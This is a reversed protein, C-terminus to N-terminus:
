IDVRTTVTSRILALLRVRSMAKKFLKDSQQKFTLSIDMLVGLYEYVTSNEVKRTGAMISIESSNSLKKKTGYLVAETKRKKLNITLNNYELWNIVYNFQENIIGEIKKPDKDSYFIVKDDAYLLMKCQKIELGIDNVHLLFLLPGLISGQPVGNTVPREDSNVGDYKVYQKRNFLFNKFWELEEHQIGYAPLKSLLVSHDVTDFAKHLDVYVVGTYNGKDMHMRIHDSLLTIAQTTCRGRRFGYQNQNLLKKSELYEYIQQHVLRELVKSFIPLVSIPRYNDFSGRCDSKFIPTIKGCKEATPFLSQQLSMNALYCLPFSIEEAGHYVLNPPLNDNGVDKGKKIRCLDNRVKRLEIRRFKFREKNPNVSNELEISSDRNERWISIKRLKEGVSCFHSCFGNSIKSKDSVSIGDIQFVKVNNECKSKTSFYAKIHRWFQKPDNVQEYLINKNYRSKSNRIMNTVTNRLRKYTSWDNEVNSKRARKLYYDRERMKHRIESNMWQCDKGRVTKQKIPAHKDVISTFLKKFICWANNLNLESLMHDWPADHLDKKFESKNYQSYDHCYIKRPKFKMFNLKRIVGTLDHDSFSNAEVIAKEIRNPHTMAIIDILTKSTSTTRTPQDILQKFGNLNIADKIEKQDNKILYNCNLDGAIITEKNENVGVELM